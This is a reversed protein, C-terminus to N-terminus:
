SKQVMLELQHNWVIQLKVVQPLNGIQRNCIKEVSPDSLDIAPSLKVQAPTLGGPRIGLVGQLTLLFIWWNIVVKPNKPVKEVVWHTVM